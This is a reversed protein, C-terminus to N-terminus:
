QITGQHMTEAHQLESVIERVADQWPRPTIGFDRTIKATSLRSNAPRPAPTPYEATTIPRARTAYGSAAFIEAALMCWSAEGANVFHYIGTPEDGTAIQRGVITRIAQAIDRAATPCGLQDAVVPVEDRGIAIRRMTKLFNNRHASLVWATRLVVARPNGILVAHEGALKSAGYIGLPGVPDDEVYAHDANGAFVYDTSVQVLPLGLERTAEALLAPGIANATFAAAIESEAKDVATYAASNVVADIPHASMYTRVSGAESLDLEDRGPTLLTVDAGWDLASLEIGLQGTGGTILVTTM